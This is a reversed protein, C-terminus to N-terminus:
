SRQYLFRPITKFFTFCLLFCHKKIEYFKRVNQTTTAEYIYKNM